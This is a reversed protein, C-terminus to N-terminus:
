VFQRRLQEPWRGEPIRCDQLPHRPNRIVAEAGGNQLPFTWTKFCRSKVRRRGAAAPGGVYEALFGLIREASDNLEAIDRSLSLPQESVQRLGDLPHLCHPAISWGCHPGGSLSRAHCSVGLM